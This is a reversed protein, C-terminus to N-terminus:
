LDSGDPVRVYDAGTGDLFHKMQTALMGHAAETYVRDHIALNRPAAVARVFDIAESAKLWPASSPALLVDIDEGPVALADGPHLDSSCVDSSWDSIRVEYATKQKFFYFVNFLLEFLM